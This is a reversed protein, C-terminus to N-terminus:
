FAELLRATDIFKLAGIKSTFFRLKLTLSWIIRSLIEKSINVPSYIAMMPGFPPPFVVRMRKSKFKSFALEPSILSKPFFSFSNLSHYLIPYTGCRAVKTSSVKGAVTSSITFIPRTALRPM